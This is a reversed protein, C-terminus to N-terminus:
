RQLFEDTHTMFEPYAGAGLEHLDLGQREGEVTVRHPFFRDILWNLGYSLPLVLGLLTAIGVLQALWQWTDTIRAARALSDATNLVPTSFRGFLGVAILGWIGGIAHVSISGGPDDISLRLELNEIAFPVLFGAVLGILLAAAPPVFACAASSAALGAVWGNATLSADPRGFRTRTVLATMLASAGASLTTNVGILAARGPLMGTFLIAGAINLGMWGFWAILCGFLVYVGNHGPMALPMGEPAYKGRRPGLIWALALATLGGTTQIVGSGGADVFGHGLGYNVGLQALWGGGWAAHAFLPYTIASLLAASACMPGLRWREAAAGMPILAALVVCFMQMWATLSAASGNWDLGRWFLPQAAMWSWPRGQVSVVHAPGGIVGQWAFGFILYSVAAVAMVCLSSMMFHAANRSRGLGTNLLAVGAFALPILLIAITTFAIGAESPIAPPNM